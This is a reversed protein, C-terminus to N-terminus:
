AREQMRQLIVNVATDVLRSPELCGDLLVVRSLGAFHKQYGSAVTEMFDRKEREFATLEECRGSVRALAVEVPLQVFFTLQPEYGQMAFRNVTKILDIDLGRGYGQYVVSSDAMRDSIVIAERALAPIVIEAFHQARDAAFLLFEAQSCLAIPRNNLMNRMHTGLSCGGPEKTLVVEPVQATSVQTSLGRAILPALTSKGSGDIGELTVLFGTSVQTM